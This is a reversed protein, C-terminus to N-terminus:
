ADHVDSSLKLQDEDEKEKKAQDHHWKISLFM